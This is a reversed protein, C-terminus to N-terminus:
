KVIEIEKTSGVWLVNAGLKESVYRIPVLTRSDKILMGDNSNVTVVEGNLNINVQKKKGDWKVEAGLNEAIFRVPVMTSGNIIQPAIDNTLNSDNVVSTKDGITMNIKLLEKATAVAYNGAKDVRATFTKTKEDYIGGLKVTTVTGDKAVEYRVLTLKSPNEVDVKSLDFSVTAPQTFSTVAKDTTVAIEMAMKRDGVLKLADSSAFADQVKKYDAESTQAVQVKMAVADNNIISNLLVNNMTFTTGDAKFIVDSKNTILSQVAEKNLAVKNDTGVTLTPVKNDKIAAEIDKNYDTTITTSSSGSGSSSSSGSSSGTGEIESGITIVTPNPNAGFITGVGTPANSTLKLFDGMDISGDAAITPVVSELSTFWNDEVKDGKSNVGNLYNTESALSDQGKLNMADAEAGKYSIFNDLSWTTESANTNFELNKGGNHVSIVNNVKCSPNSNSFVGNKLNDFSISDRLVHAVPQSEGGLKFGNGEGVLDGTTLKGNAYTVSKEVIVEGIPGTTSKAYLDWGDDINHHAICYRFINGDGVTLKAAFGDADNALADCNNYSECSQVLNYSPWMAKLETESGSIQIGTNGSDHVTLKEAINHNGTIHVGVKGTNMIEMDYVHWYNGALTIGNDNCGTFDLVARENPASMLVIPRDETGNHGRNVTIGKTLKYTGGLLVIEQGPQAYNVATYIDLPSAKTGKGASTATPSVYIANAHTGYAKYDVTFQVKIPEYSALEEYEGLLAGQAEKPFPTYIATYTNTGKNLKLDAVARFNKGRQEPSVEINGAVINGNSDLIDITGAYNVNFGAEYNAVGSTKSADFNIRAEKYSIPREQRPEDKEPEITTFNIDKVTVTIKRSVAMGVYYKDKDQQLLLDPEYCIVEETKEGTRPDIMSAHFGTNSKRLTLTYEEGDTFRPGSPVKDANFNWDFPATDLKDNRTGAVGSDTPKGTYGTVFFGGPIGATSQKTGEVKYKRIVSGASNFYRAASNGAEFTDIAMIGFGSQNDKSASDDVHFTATLTFNETEPNIETYYYLFGDESDALKGGSGSGVPVAALTISGDGNETIYGSAGSGVEASLFREEQNALVKTYTNEKTEGEADRAVVKVIYKTGPTLNEITYKSEKIANAVQREEGGEEKIYVDYSVASRTDDWDVNLSNNKGTKVNTFNVEGLLIRISTTYEDSSIAEKVGARIADCVVTYEGSKGPSLTVTASGNTLESVKKSAVLENQENYLKVWLRDTKPNVVTGEVTIDVQTLDDANSKVSQVVPKTGEDFNPVEVKGETVSVYYLNVSKASYIYYTGAANLSAKQAPLKKDADQINSSNYATLTSVVNGQADYICIPRDDSGNSLAYLEVEAPGTTKFEVSRYTSAGAGGFKIRQTFSHHYESTQENADITIAKETTAKITFDGCVTDETLTGDNLESINLVKTTGEQIEVQSDSTKETTVEKVYTGENSEVVNATLPMSGVIMATGLVGAVKRRMSKSM